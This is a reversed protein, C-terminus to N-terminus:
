TAPPEQVRANRREVPLPSAKWRAWVVYLGPVVILFVLVLLSTTPHTALGLLERWFPSSPILGAEVFEHLGGAILKAVLIALVAGTVAFFRRLNVQMTGQVLLYGLGAALVLGIGGGLASDLPNAGPTGTLAALFLITEVGERLVMFFTFAFVGLAARGAPAAAVADLRQELRRRLDRKTRWMWLALSGVLGAALFMLSGELIENEPDLGFRQVLVAGVLSALVAAGLGQLVHRALRARGTKRLYALLVGVVLAVEVGERLTVVLAELM